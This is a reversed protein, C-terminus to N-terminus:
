GPVKQGALLMRILARSGHYRAPMRRLAGTIHWLNNLVVGIYICCALSLDFSLFNLEGPRMQTHAFVAAFGLLMLVKTAILGPVIGMLRMFWRALPNFERFGLHLALRTSQVDLVQLVMLLGFVLHASHGLGQWVMLIHEVRDM